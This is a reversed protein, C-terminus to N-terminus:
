HAVHAPRSPIMRETRIPVRDHVESLKALAYAGLSIAVDRAAIDFMSATILNVAICLLWVMMVYAAYRTFKALIALGVAMEIVGVIYMFTQPAFPMIRAFFPSVYNPWYTLLNFFKDLGAVTAIAGLGVRLTWWASELRRDM